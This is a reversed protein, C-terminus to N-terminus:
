DVINVTCYAKNEFPGEESVQWSIDKLSKM